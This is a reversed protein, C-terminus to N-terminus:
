FSDAAVPAGTTTHTIKLFSVAILQREHAEETDDPDEHM